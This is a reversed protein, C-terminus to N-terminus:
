RTYKLTCRCNVITSADAGLSADKPYRMKWIGVTFADDIGITEGEVSMHDHRVRQDLMTVWTKKTYGANRKDMFQVYNRIANADNEATIQARDKSLYWPELFHRATVEILDEVVKKIHAALDPYKRITVGSDKVADNLRRETAEQLYDLDLVYGDEEQEGSNIWLWFLFWFVDDEEEALKIRRTIETTDLEMEGFYEEYEVALHYNKISDVPSAYMPNGDRDYGVLVLEVMSDQKARYMKEGNENTGIYELTGLIDHQAAYMPRGDPTYGIFILNYFADHKAVFKKTAM